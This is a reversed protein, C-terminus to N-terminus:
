RHDVAGLWGRPIVDFLAPLALIVGLLEDVHAGLVPLTGPQHLAVREHEAALQEAVELQALEVEPGARVGPHLPVDASQLDALLAEKDTAVAALDGLLLVGELVGRGAPQA